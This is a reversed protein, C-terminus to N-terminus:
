RLLASGGLATMVAQLWPIPRHAMEARNAPLQFRLLTTEDM